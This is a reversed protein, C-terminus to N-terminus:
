EKGNLSENPVVEIKKELERLRHNIDPLQKFM